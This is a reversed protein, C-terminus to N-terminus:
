QSEGACSSDDADAAKPGADPLRALLTISAPSSGILFRQGEFQVVTVFRRDGLPSSEVLALLKPRRRSRARLARWFNEFGRCAAALGRAFGKRSGTRTGALTLPVPTIDM